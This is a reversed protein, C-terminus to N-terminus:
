GTEELKLLITFVVPKHCQNLSLELLWKVDPFCIFIKSSALVNKYIDDTIVLVLAM